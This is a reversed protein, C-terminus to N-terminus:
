KGIFQLYKTYYDEIGQELTRFPKNYWATKLQELDACTYYQYHTALSSPMEIPKINIPSKHLVKAWILPIDAFSRAVGTGVNYIGKLNPHQIFHLIVDVVDQVYVFDRGTRKTNPLTFLEMPANKQIQDYGKTIISRMSCKHHEGYGYVNFFRLGVGPMNHRIMWQDFMLKSEGYINLPKLNQCEESFDTSNGYVAASSAYIFPINSCIAYKAIDISSVLNSKIMHETNYRTTDTCAGMHIIVDPVPYINANQQILGYFYASNFYEFNLSHNISIYKQSQRQMPATGIDIGYVKWRDYILRHAINAGIFGNCGTIFAVKNKM